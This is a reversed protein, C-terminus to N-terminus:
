RRSLVVPRRQNHPGHDKGTVVLVRSARGKVGFTDTVVLRIRYRGPRRYRYGLVAGSYHHFRHDELEIYWQWNRVRSTSLRAFSRQGNLVVSQLTRVTKAPLIRLRPVPARHGTVNITLRATYRELNDSVSVLITRKGPSRWSKSTTPVQNTYTEYNGNGNLDWAYSGVGGYGLARFTVVQGREPKTTSAVLRLGQVPGCVPHAAVDRLALAAPKPTGNGQLVGLHDLWGAGGTDHLRFVLMVPVDSMGNVDCYAARLAAAQENEDVPERGPVTATSIGFETLWISKRNDRNADRTRRVRGLGARFDGLLPHNGPYFHYGIADMASRAGAKYMGALFAADATGNADTAGVGSLGGSVVPLQPAVANVAGYAEKLLETYRAADVKPAFFHVANPENWVEIGLATPYRSALARVFRAWDADYARAPAYTCGGTPSGGPCGGARAWTPADLAVLLPRMGQAQANAVVADLGGWSYQGRNWEIGSWSAFVRVSGAGSARAQSLLGLNNAWDDTYGFVPQAGASSATAGLCAVTAALAVLFRRVSTTSLARLLRPAIDAAGGGAKM